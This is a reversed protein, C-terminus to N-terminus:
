QIWLNRLAAYGCGLERHGKMAAGIIAETQEDNIM